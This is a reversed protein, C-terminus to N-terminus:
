GGGGKESPLRELYVRVRRRCNRRSSIAIRGLPRWSLNSPLVRSNGGVTEKGEGEYRYVTVNVKSYRM